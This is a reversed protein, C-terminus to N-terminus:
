KLLEQEWNVIITIVKTWQECINAKIVDNAITNAHQYKTMYQDSMQIHAKSTTVVTAVCFGFVLIIAGGIAYPWARGSSKNM